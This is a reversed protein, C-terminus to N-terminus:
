SSEPASVDEASEDVVVVYVKLASPSRVPAVPDEEVAALAAQFPAPSGALEELEAALVQDAV